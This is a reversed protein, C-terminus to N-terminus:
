PELGHWAPRDRLLRLRGESGLPAQPDNGLRCNRPASVELQTVRCGSVARGHRWPEEKFCRGASARMRAWAVGGVNVWCRPEEGLGAFEALAATAVPADRSGAVALLIPRGCSTLPLGCVGSGGAGEEQRLSERPVRARQRGDHVRMHGVLLQEGAHPPQRASQLVDLCAFPGLILDRPGRGRLALPTRTELLM